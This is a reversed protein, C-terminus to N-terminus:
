KQSKLPLWESEKNALKEDQTLRVAEGKGDAQKAYINWPGRVGIMEAVQTYTGPGNAAVRGGPGSSYTIFEGTPSFDPHYLHQKKSQAVVRINDVRASTPTLILDAACVTHDNRSWTVQKGDPSTCPRCGSMKLDIVKDGAVEIAIIAHGFGMGGHVTSLIWNGDAAWTLNYLHHIKSNPHASTQKSKVDYFYMGKSVYDAINFKSFEQKVFAIKSSDPSWCPQRSSDAIKIRDSGDANMLYVSRNAVGDKYTDGLFCIKTGDPSVQPYLEHFDKTNTLKKRGTGDANMVCLEWNDEDYSEFVVKHPYQKLQQQLDEGSVAPTLVTLIPVVM